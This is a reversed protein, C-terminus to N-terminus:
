RLREVAGAFAAGVDEGDRRQALLASLLQRAKGAPLDGTALVGLERLSAGGGPGGYHPRTGGSVVRTAVVVPVNAALLREITPVLTAPLNGLGTGEVVLGRARTAKVIAEIAGTRVGHLRGRDTGRSSRRAAAAGRANAASEAM